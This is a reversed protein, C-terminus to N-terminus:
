KSFLAGSAMATSDRWGSSRRPTGGAEVGIDLGFPKGQKGADLSEVTVRALVLPINQHGRIFQGGIHGSLVRDKALHESGLSLGDRRGSVSEM